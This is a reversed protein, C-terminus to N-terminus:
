AACRDAGRAVCSRAQQGSPDLRYVTRDGAYAVWLAEAGQVASAPGALAVPEPGSDVREPAGGSGDRGLHVRVVEGRRPLAAYLEDRGAAIWIAAPTEPLVIHGVQGEATPEVVAVGGDVAVYIFGGYPLPTGHAGRAGTLPFTGRLEVGHARIGYTRVTGRYVGILDGLGAPVDYPGTGGGDRAVGLGTPPYSLAGGCTLHTKAPNAGAPLGCLHRGDSRAVVVGTPLGGASAILPAPERTLVSWRGVLDHVQWYAGRATALLVGFDAGALAGPAPVAVKTRKGEGDIRVLTRGDALLYLADDWEISMASAGATTGGGLYRTLAAIGGAVAVVALVVVGAVAGRRPARVRHLTAAATRKTAAAGALAPPDVEVPSWPERDDGAAADAAAAAVIRARVPVALRVGAASLRVAGDIAGPAGTDIAVHIEFNAPSVLIRPDDADAHVAITEDVRASLMLTRAQAPEGAALVGFDLEEPSVGFAPSEATVLRVRGQRPGSRALAVDGVARDVDFVPIQKTEARLRELVYEYADRLSIYGDRNPDPGVRLADVFHRTFASPGDGALADRSAETRRSSALLFRGTGCLSPPLGGGKFAGSQCCDLVIVFTRANSARMMGNVEADSMGTSVLLDNRTDRLCLFLNDYEDQKGHGSYYLLLRDDRRAGRFFEEMATAVDHKTGDEILRVNRPEFLGRERDCLADRVLTIDHRPGVLRPLNHPDEPFDANGILLAKYTPEAGDPEDPALAV